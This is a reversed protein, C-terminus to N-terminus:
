RGERPPFFQVHTFNRDPYERVWDFIRKEEETLFGVIDAALGRMHLSNNTGGVGVSGNHKQCRFVSTFILKEGRMNELRMLAKILKSDVITFNCDPNKCKCHLFETQIGWRLGNYDKAILEIM